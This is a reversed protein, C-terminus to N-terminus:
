PKMSQVRWYMKGIKGIIQGNKKMTVMIQSVGNQLGSMQINIGNNLCNLQKRMGNM